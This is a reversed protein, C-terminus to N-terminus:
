FKNIRIQDLESTWKQCLVSTIEEDILGNSVHFLAKTHKYKFGIYFAIILELM